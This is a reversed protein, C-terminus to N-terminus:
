VTPTMGPCTTTAYLPLLSLLGTLRAEAETGAKAKRLPSCVPIHLDFGKRELNSKTM